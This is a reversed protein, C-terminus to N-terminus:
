ANVQWNPRVFLPKYKQENKSEASLLFVQVWCRNQALPASPLSQAKPNSDFKQVKISCDTKLVGVQVFGYVNHALNYFFVV